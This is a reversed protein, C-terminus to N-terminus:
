AFSRCNTLDLLLWAGFRPRWRHPAFKRAFVWQLNARTNASDSRNGSGPSSPTFDEGSVVRIKEKNGRNPGVGTQLCRALFNSKGFPVRTKWCRRSERPLSRSTSSTLPESRSKGKVRKVIPIRSPIATLKKLLHEVRDDLIGHRGARYINRDGSKSSPNFRELSANRKSM